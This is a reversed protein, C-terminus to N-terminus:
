GGMRLVHRPEGAVHIAALRDEATIERRNDLGFLVLRSRRQMDLLMEDLRARPLDSLLRRLDHLHVRVDWAGGSADLYARTIRDELSASAEAEAQSPASHPPAVIEALAVGQQEMYRHLLTLWGQLVPAAGAKSLEADLHDNAWAWGSDTVELWTANRRTRDDRRQGSAVLRATRLAQWTAASAPKPKIDKLWAGGGQALLAWLILTQNPKLEVTM